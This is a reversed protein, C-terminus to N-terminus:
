AKDIIADYDNLNRQDPKINAKSQAKNTLIPIVKPLPKSVPKKEANLAQLTDKFVSLKYQKTRLCEALTQGAIDASYPEIAKMIGTIQDRVYRPYERHVLDLFITAEPSNPFLKAAEKKLEAIKLSIDRRHNNNIVKKKNKDKPIEHTWIEAGQTPKISLIGDKEDVFVVAGERYTGCPVSYYVSKHCITNDQRVTRQEFIPSVKASAFPRLFDVEKEWEAKPVLNTVSHKNANATRDLWALAQQQIAVLNSYKRGYLFNRKTYGVLNETRGKSQPDSKRCFHLGLKRSQVYAKFEATLILEGSNESVLLVRDQDYVLEHPIGNFFAFANEHGEITTRTTFPKDQFFVYKMRSRSLVIAFFYVKKRQGEETTMNYVGFDVQAQKGYPLEDVMMMERVAGELPINHQQRIAMVFNYVTKQAVVPFDPYKEKLWDHAQATTALPADQLRKVLFPEYPALLKSRWKNKTVFAEFEEDTMCLYRKVTRKNIGLVKRIGSQSLGKKKLEKVKYYM